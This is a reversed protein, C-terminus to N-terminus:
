AEAAILNKKHDTTGSKYVKLYWLFHKLVHVYRAYDVWSKCVYFGFSNIVKSNLAEHYENTIRDWHNDKLHIPLYPTTPQDESVHVLSAEM